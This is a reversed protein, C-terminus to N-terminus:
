SRSHCGPISRVLVRISRALSPSCVPLAALTRAMMSIELTMAKAVPLSTM